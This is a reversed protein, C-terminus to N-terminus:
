KSSPIYMWNTTVSGGVDIAKMQTPIVSTLNIGNEAGLQATHVNRLTNLNIWGNEFSPLEATTIQYKDLIKIPNVAALEGNLTFSPLPSPVLPRNEQTDRINVSYTRSQSVDCTHDSPFTFLVMNNSKGNAYPIVRTCNM